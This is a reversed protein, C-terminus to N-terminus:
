KFLLALGLRDKVNLKEFIHKAHARVTRTTIDLKQAIVKYIDGEVLLLAVEKERKSLVSLLEHETDKKPINEVSQMILMSTFEPHLWVMGESIAEIAASFFSQHMLANGYGSAGHKLMQKATQLTPTRDLVMVRNKHTLAKLIEQCGNECACINLIILTDELEYLADLTDIVNQENLINKQWFLILQIDESHLVIKVVKLEM